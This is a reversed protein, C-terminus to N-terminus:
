GNVYLVATWGAGDWTAWAGLGNPNTGGREIRVGALGPPTHTVRVRVRQDPLSAFSWQPDAAVPATKAGAAKPRPAATTDPGLERGRPGRLWVRRTSENGAADRAYLELARPPDGPAVKVLEVAEQLPRSSTLFRPRYNAPADLIVGDSGLVRD